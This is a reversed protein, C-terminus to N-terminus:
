IHSGEHEEHKFHVHVEHLLPTLCAARSSPTLAKTICKCLIFNACKKILSDSTRIIAVPRQLIIETEFVYKISSSLLDTCYVWKQVAVETFSSRKGVRM